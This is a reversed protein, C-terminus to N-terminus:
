PSDPIAAPRSPVGECPAVPDHDCPVLGFPRSETGQPGGHPVDRHEPM